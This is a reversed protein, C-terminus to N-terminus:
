PEKSTLYFALFRNDFISQLSLPSFIILNIGEWWIPLNFILYFFVSRDYVLAIALSSLLMCGLYYGYYPLNLFFFFYFIVTKGSTNSVKYPSKSCHSDPSQFFRSFFMLVIYSVMMSNYGFYNTCCLCLPLTISMKLLCIPSGFELTAQLARM